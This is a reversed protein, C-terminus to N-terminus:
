HPLSLTWQEADGVPLRDKGTREADNRRLLTKLRDSLYEFVDRLQATLWPFSPEALMLAKLELTTVSQPVKFIVSFTIDYQQKLDPKDIRWLCSPGGVGGAVIDARGLAYQFNPIAIFGHLENANVVKAKIEAPIKLNPLAIPDIGITYGLDGDLAVKMGAGWQLVDKWEASPFLRQIILANERSATFELSTTLRVFQVGRGPQLTVPLTMYYFHFQEQMQLKWVDNLEVNFSKFLKPTLRVLSDNPNGFFAKTELLAQLANGGISLKTGGSLPSEQEAVETMLEQLLAKSSSLDDFGVVDNM